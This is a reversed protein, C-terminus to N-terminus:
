GAEMSGEVLTVVLRGATDFIALSGPATEPLSFDLGVEHRAPNPQPAAFSLTSRPVQAAVSLTRSLYVGVGNAPFWTLLDPLSDHNLDATTVWVQNASQIVTDM